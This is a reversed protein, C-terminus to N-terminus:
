IFRVLSKAGTDSNLDKETNQGAYMAPRESEALLM